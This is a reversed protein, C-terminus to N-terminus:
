TSPSLLVGLGELPSNLDLYEAEAQEQEEISQEKVAIAEKAHHDLLDIQTQLQEKYAQAVQLDELVKKYARM